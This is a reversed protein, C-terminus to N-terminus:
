QDNEKQQEEVNIEELSKKILELNVQQPILPSKEIDGRIIRVFEDIVQNLCVKGKNDFLSKAFANFDLKNDRGANLFAFLSVFDRLGYTMQAFLDLANKYTDTEKDDKLASTIIEPSVSNKDDLWHYRSNTQQDTTTKEDKTLDIKKQAIYALMIEQEKTYISQINKEMAQTQKCTALGIVLVFLTTQISNKQM